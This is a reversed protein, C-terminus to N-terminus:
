SPASNTNYIGGDTSSSGVGKISDSMEFVEMKPAAWRPRAAQEALEQDRLKESM